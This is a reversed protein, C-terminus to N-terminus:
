AASSNEPPLIQISFLKSRRIDPLLHLYPYDLLEQHALCYLGFIMIFSRPQPNSSVQRSIILIDRSVGNTGNLFIMRTKEIYM